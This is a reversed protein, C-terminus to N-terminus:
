FVYIKIRSLDNKRTEIEQIKRFELMDSVHEKCWKDLSKELYSQLYTLLNLTRLNLLKIECLSGTKFHRKRYLARRSLGIARSSFWDM